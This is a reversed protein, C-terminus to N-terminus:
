IKDIERKNFQGQITANTIGSVQQVAGIIFRLILLVTYNPAFAIGFGLMYVALHSCIHVTKRGFRDALSSVLMAGIGQGAMTM